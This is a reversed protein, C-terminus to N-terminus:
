PSANGITLTFAQLVIYANRGRGFAAKIQLHYVGAVDPRGTMTSTGPGSHVFRVHVPLAGVETLRPTPTGSTTVAFSFPVGVTATARNPSTIVRAPLVLEVAGIDCRTGQPRSVGRQDTGACISTRHEKLELPIRNLVPSDPAPAETETPGGNNQLPGLEPNVASLGHNAASFGCTGDDDLSWSGIIAGVCDAGSSSNAVISALVSSVTSDNYIGGGSLAANGSLTSLVVSVAGHFGNWIGGGNGGATNGAVTSDTLTVLGDLYNWIGGGDQAATNGSVTSDTITMTGFMYNYIGGGDQTATNGSVTSDTITVTSPYSAAIGGGVAATNGSVTSGTMTLTGYKGISIGGSRDNGSFTSDTVTVDGGLSTSIGGGNGSFTSGTVTADGPGAQCGCLDIGAGGNASFASDTITLTGGQVDVIGSGDNDTLTSDSVSLIGGQMVDIGGDGSSGDTSGDEVTVGTVAGTIGSDVVFVGSTNNGSVALNGAGPGDITLNVSIEIAGTLVIPSAPPCSVSFTVTDGAAAAGVVAPLSGPGSGACTTVTDTAAGAVAAPLVVVSLTALSTVLGVTALRFGTDLTRRCRAAARM